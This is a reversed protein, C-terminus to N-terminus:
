PRSPGFPAPFVVVAPISVVRTIGVLPWASTPPISTTAWGTAALCTIPTTGWVLVRSRASLTNSFRYKWPRKKPIFARVALASAVMRSSWNRRASRACSGTAASEPPMAWRRITARAIM